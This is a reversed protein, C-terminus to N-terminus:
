VEAKEKLIEIMERALDKVTMANMLHDQAHVMLLSVHVPKGQVESQILDTQVHHCRVLAEDSEQLLKEAEGFNGARAERIAQIAKSRGDGANVVLEMVVIEFDENM